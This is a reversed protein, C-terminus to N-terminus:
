RQSKFHSMDRKYSTQVRQSSGSSPISSLSTTAQCRVQNELSYSPGEILAMYKASLTVVWNIPSLSMTGIARVGKMRKGKLKALSSKAVQLAPMGKSLLTSVSVEKSSELLGEHKRKLCRKRYTKIMKKKKRTMKYKKTSVSMQLSEKVPQPLQSLCGGVKM